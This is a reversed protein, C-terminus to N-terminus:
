DSDSDSSDDIFGEELERSLRRENDPRRSRALADLVQAIDEDIDELEEGEELDRDPIGGAM